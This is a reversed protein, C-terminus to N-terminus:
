NRTAESAAAIRAPELPPEGRIFDAAKEAIMIIPANINAYTITASDLTANFGSRAAHWDGRAILSFLATEQQAADPFGADAM